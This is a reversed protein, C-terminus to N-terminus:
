VVGSRDDGIKTDYNQSLPPNLHDIYKLSNISRFLFTVFTEKLSSDDTQYRMDFSKNITHFQIM